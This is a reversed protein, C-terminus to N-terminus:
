AADEGKLKKHDFRTAVREVALPQLDPIKKLLGPLKRGDINLYAWPDQGAAQVTTAFAKVDEISQGVTTFYGFQEGNVDVMGATKCWEQIAKKMPALQSELVLVKGAIDAAEEASTVKVMGAPVNKAAPCDASYSCWSCYSGPTAKFQTDQEIMSIGGFIRSEARSVVSLDFEAKRVVSHRVFDLNVTFRTIHPFLRNVVWCYTQLQLDKEVDSQSRLAWDTKFDTIVAHDATEGSQLLDVVAWFLFQGKGDIAPLPLKIMEETSVVSSPSFSHSQAFAEMIELVEDLGGLGLGHQEAFYEQRALETLVTIDTELGADVLHKIYAHITRHVIDGRMLADGKIEPRRAVYKQAFARPCSAYLDLRTYSYHQFRM